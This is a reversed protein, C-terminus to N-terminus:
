ICCITLIEFLEDVNIPKNLVKNIGVQRFKDIHMNESISILAIVPLDPQLEKIYKTAEFGDMAPM